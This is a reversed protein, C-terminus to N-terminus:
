RNPKNPSPLNDSKRKLGFLFRATNSRKVLLDYLGLAGFVAVAAIVLFKELAGTDWRLIYFGAVVLITQHLIYVPYAAEGTYRLFPNSFNLYRNAFGLVAVVCCWSNFGRFADYAIREPSYVYSPTNGSLWLAFLGCLGAGGLAAAVGRYRGIAETLRPDSALFYGYVFYLLYLCFNAWDNVLNQNGNPWGARLSGEILALPLAPLFIAGPRVLVASLREWGGGTKNRAAIFLPLAILSYVFLYVVFWLHAWQFHEGGLFRWYFHRYDDQYGPGKLLGFYVLPPVVVLCGFAFPVLLRQFREGVYQAATRSGLAYWTGAGSILFFLMMFWQDLFLVLGTAAPQPRPMGVLVFRDASTEIRDLLQGAQVRSGISAWDVLVLAPRNPSGLYADLSESEVQARIQLTRALHPPAVIRLPLRAEAALQGLGRFAEYVADFYSFGSGLEARRVILRDRGAIPALTDRLDPSYGAQLALADFRGTTLLPPLSQQGEAYLRDFRRTHGYLPDDKIYYSSASFVIAAHFCIVLATMLVRLWDFDYRRATQFRVPEVPPRM